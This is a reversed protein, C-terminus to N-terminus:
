FSIKFHVRPFIYFPPLSSGSANVANYMTVLIGQEASTVSGVQREGRGALVHEPVQVTTIGTEDVNWIDNPSFNYKTLVSHLNNCFLDVNHKNFASMLGISTAEPKRIALEPNRKLFARFWDVGACKNIEWPKTCGPHSHPFKKELKRAYEFTLARLKLPSLGYGMKSSILCYQVRKKEESVSFVKMSSNCYPICRLKNLGDPTQQAEKIRRKLTSRKVKFIEAAKRETKALVNEVAQIM